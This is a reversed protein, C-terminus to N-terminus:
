KQILLNNRKAGQELEKVRNKLNVIQENLDDIGSTEAKMLLKKLSTTEADCIDILDCKGDYSKDPIKEGNRGPLKALHKHGINKEFLQELEEKTIPIKFKKITITENIYSGLTERIKLVTRNIKEDKKELKDGVVSLELLFDFTGLLPFSGDILALNQSSIDRNCLSQFVRMAVFFEQTCPPKVKILIHADKMSVKYVNLKEANYIGYRKMDDVLKWNQKYTNVLEAKDSLFKGSIKADFERKLYVDISGKTLYKKCKDRLSFLFKNKKWLNETEVDNYNLEDHLKKLKDFVGEKKFYLSFADLEHDRKRETELLEADTFYKQLETDDKLCNLLEFKTLTCTEHIYNGLTKRIKFITKNIKEDIKKDNKGDGSLELLFDFPGLVSFVEGIKVFNEPNQIRNCIERYAVMMICFQEAYSPKIKILVYTEKMM